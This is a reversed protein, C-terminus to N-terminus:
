TRPSDGKRGKGQRRSKRIRRVEFDPIDGPPIVGDAQARRIAKITEAKLTQRIDAM